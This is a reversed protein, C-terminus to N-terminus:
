WDFTVSDFFYPLTTAPSSYPLSYHHNIPPPFNYTKKTSITKRGLVIIKRILDIKKEGLKKDVNKM